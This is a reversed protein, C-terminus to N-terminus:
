HPVGRTVSIRRSHAYARQQMRQTHKEFSEANFSTTSLSFTLFPFLFFFLFLSFLQEEIKSVRQRRRQGAM